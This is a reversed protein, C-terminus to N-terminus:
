WRRELGRHQRQRGSVRGHTSGNQVLYNTNTVDHIPDVLTTFSYFRWSGAKGLVLGNYQLSRVLMAAGRPAWIPVFETKAKPILISLVALHPTCSSISACNRCKWTLKRRWNEGGTLTPANYIRSHRFVSGVLCTRIGYYCVVALNQLRSKSTNWVRHTTEQYSRKSMNTATSFTAEEGLPLGNDARQPSNTGICAVSM